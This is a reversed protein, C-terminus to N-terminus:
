KESAQLDTRMSPRCDCKVWRDVIKRYTQRQQVGKSHGHSNSPWTSYIISITMRLDLRLKSIELLKWWHGVYIHMYWCVRKLKEMRIWSVVSGVDLVGEVEGKCGAIGWRWRWGKENGVGWGRCFILVELVYGSYFFFNVVPRAGHM